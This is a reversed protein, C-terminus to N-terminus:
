WGVALFSPQPLMGWARRQHLELDSDELVSAEPGTLKRAILDTVQPLRAEEDLRVLNADVAGTRMLHIGTLLVRYVYLLLKVRRPREKEFLKWRTEAFGFYHHSHHKTICCQAIELLEAHEPTTHVVLPSFVQELVYGNKKLLLGFFKRADHTVLDLEIDGDQRTFEITERGTGLGVVGGRAFRPLGELSAYHEELVSLLLARIKAEDATARLASGAYVRELHSEKDACWQRLQEETWEGRRIAKLQENNRQLDLDEEIEDRVHHEQYQAFGPGPTGFGAVEGRLHPFLEERPPIAWGYVDVDSIDSCVGYAVSGMITEHQVNGPLWRPPKVLGRDMLRQLTSMLAPVGLTIAVGNLIRWRPSPNATRPAGDSEEQGRRM